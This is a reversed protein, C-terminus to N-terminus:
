HITRAWKGLVTTTEAHVAYVVGFGDDATVLRSAPILQWLLGVRGGDHVMLRTLWGEFLVARARDRTTDDQGDPNDAFEGLYAVKGAMKALLEHADIWVQVDRGMDFGWDRPYMHYSLMDLEEVQLLKSFSAGEAGSVPYHNSLGAYLSPIDDMGEGGDAVLHNPTVTKLHRALERITDVLHTTGVCSPCRFENGLEWAMIAPEDKYAVGTLENVRNALMTAYDKWYGKMTADTFFDDHAPQGKGAWAALTPLGGYDSWNNTLTLIIRLGRAKAEAVARDLGRLGAQRYVGPEPRIASSDNTDNFAWTRVVALNMCVAQDLAQLAPEALATNGQEGYAFLQQLYYLNAGVARFARGDVQLESGQRKVFASGMPPLAPCPPTPLPAVHAGPTQGKVDDDDDDDCGAALAVAVLVVVVPARAAGIASNRRQTNM